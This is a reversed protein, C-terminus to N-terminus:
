QGASPSTRASSAWSTFPWSRQGRPFVPWCPHHLRCVPLTWDRSTGVSSLSWFAATHPLLLVLHTRREEVHLRAGCGLRSRGSAHPAAPQAPPHASAQAQSLSSSSARPSRVQPGPRGQNCHPDAPLLGTGLSSCGCSPTTWLRDQSCGGKTRTAVPDGLGLCRRLFLGGRSVHFRGLSPHRRPQKLRGDQEWGWGEAWWRGPAGWAWSPCIRQSCVAPAQRREADLRVEQSETQM